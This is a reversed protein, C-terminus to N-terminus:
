NIIMEQSKSTDKITAILKFAGTTTRKVVCSSSTQSVITGGATGGSYVSKLTWTVPLNNTVVATYAQQGNLVITSSGSINIIHNDISVPTIDVGVVLYGVASSGTIKIISEGSTVASIEGLSNVTAVATNNSSYNFTSTIISNKERDFVQPSIKLIEGKSLSETENISTIIYRSNGNSWRNPVENTLDDDIAVTDKEGMITIFGNISLDYSTIKYSTKSVIFRTNYVMVLKRLAETDEFMVQAQGAPVSFYKNSNVGQASTELLVPYENIENNIMFKIIYNSKKLRAKFTNENKDIESNIFYTDNKYKVINGASIPFTCIILKDNYFNINELADKIIATKVIGNHEINEGFENIFFDINNELGIL